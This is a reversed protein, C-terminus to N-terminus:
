QINAARFIITDAEVRPAAAEKESLDDHYRAIKLWCGTHEGDKIQSIEADQRIGKKIISAFEASASKPIWGIQQGNLRCVKVANADKPHPEHILKVPEGIKCLRIIDQRRTGNENVQSEGKIGIVFSSKTAPYPITNADQGKWGLEIKCRPCPNTGYPLDLKCSPCKYWKNILKADVTM